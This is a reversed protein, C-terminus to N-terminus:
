ENIKNIMKQTIWPMRTKRDVKGILDSMTDLMCKKINNWLVEVNGSEFDIADFEELDDQV